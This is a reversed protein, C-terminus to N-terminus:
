SPDPQGVPLNAEVEEGAKVAEYAVQEGDRGDHSDLAPVDVASFAINTTAESFWTVYRLSM